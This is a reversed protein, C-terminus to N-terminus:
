TPLLGVAGSRKAYNLALEYFLDARGRATTPSQRRWRAAEDRRGRAELVDALKRRVIVLFAQADRYSPSRKLIGAM